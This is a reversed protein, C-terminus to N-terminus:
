IWGVVSRGLYGPPKGKETAGVVRFGHLQRFWVLGVAGGGTRKVGAAGIPCGTEGAVGCIKRGDGTGDGTVGRGCNGVSSLPRRGVTARPGGAVWRGRNGLKVPTRRGDGTPDGTAERGCNGSREKLMGRGIVGRGPPKPAVTLGFKVGKVEKGLLWARGIM